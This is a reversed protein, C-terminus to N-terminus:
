SAISDRPTARAHHGARAAPRAVGQHRTEFMKRDDAVSRPKKKGKAYEEIYREFFTTLTVNAADAKRAADKEALPDRGQDIAVRHKHAIRLAEDAPLTEARGLTLRRQRGNVRYDLVWRKRGNPKVWLALGQCRSDPHWGVAAARVQKKTTAM